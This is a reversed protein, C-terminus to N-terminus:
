QILHSTVSCECQSADSQRVGGYCRALNRGLRYWRGLGGSWHLFLRARFCFTTDGSFLSAKGGSLGLLSAARECLIRWLMLLPVEFYRLEIFRSHAFKGEAAAASNPHSSFSDSPVSTRSTQNAPQWQPLHQM